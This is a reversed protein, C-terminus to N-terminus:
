VRLGNKGVIVLSILNRYWDGHWAVPVPLFWLSSSFFDIHSEPIM